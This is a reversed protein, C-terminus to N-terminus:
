EYGEVFKKLYAETSQVGDLEPLCYESLSCRRCQARKRVKPTYRRDMYNHMEDVISILSSNMDETFQIYERRRTEHYYIAGQSIETALMEELCKAQALLQLEDELGKKPKGRKYELPFLSYNADWKPIFVGDDSQRFEVLDCVGQIGLEHSVVRLSRISILDKRKERLSPDDVREHLYMGEKTLFNEKWRQEIHILAWQRRCFVFHQIGSIMLYEAEDRKNFPM